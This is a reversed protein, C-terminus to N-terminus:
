DQCLLLQTQDNRDRLLRPVGWLCLGTNVKGELLVKPHSLPPHQLLVPKKVKAASHYLVGWVCVWWFASAFNHVFVHANKRVLAM